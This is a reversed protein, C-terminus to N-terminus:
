IVLVVINLVNYPSIDLFNYFRPIQNWRKACCAKADPGINANFRLFNSSSDTPAAVISVANLVFNSAISRSCNRTSSM